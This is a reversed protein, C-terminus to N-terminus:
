FQFYIFSNESSVNLNLLMLIIAIYFFWRVFIGRGAFLSRCHTDKEYFSVLEVFVILLITTILEKTLIGLTSLLNTVSNITFFDDWGCKLLSVFHLADSICNARFFIWAFTVLSFVLLVKFYNAIYGCLSSQQHYSNPSFNSQILRESMLYLGHLMGWAIFTFDAGHWIGCITFVIFINFYKRSSVVRNGGLPIYVYDRFWSSLSIHWRRWFETVSKSSYPRDFNNSLNIGLVM